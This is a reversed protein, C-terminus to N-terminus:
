KVMGRGANGATHDTAIHSPNTLNLDLKDSTSSFSIDLFQVMGSIIFHKLVYICINLLPISKITQNVVIRFTVKDM